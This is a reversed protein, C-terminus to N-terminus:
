TDFEARHPLFEVILCPSIKWNTCSYFSEVVVFFIWCRHLCVKSETAKQVVTLVAHLLCLKSRISDVKNVSVM